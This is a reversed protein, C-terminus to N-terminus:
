EDYKADEYQKLCYEHGKAGRFLMFLGSFNHHLDPYKSQGTPIIDDKNRKRESSATVIGLAKVFPGLMKLYVMEKDRSIRNIESYLPPSGIEMSYLYLVLCSIKGYPNTLDLDPDVNTKDDKTPGIM